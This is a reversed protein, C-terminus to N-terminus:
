EYSNIKFAVNEKHYNKLATIIKDLNIHALIGFEIIYVMLPNFNKMWLIRCTVRSYSQILERKVHARMKKTLEWRMFLHKKNMKKQENGSKHM